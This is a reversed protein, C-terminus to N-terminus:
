LSLGHLELTNRGLIREALPLAQRETLDGRAIWGDLLEALAARTWLAALLIVDPASFADSGFLLKSAPTMELAEALLAGARRRTRGRSARRPRPASQRRSPWGPATPSSARSRSM